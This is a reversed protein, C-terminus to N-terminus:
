LGMAWLDHCVADLHEARLLDLRLARLRTTERIGVICAPPPSPRFRHRLLFLGHGPEITRHDVRDRREPPYLDRLSGLCVVYQGTYLKVLLSISLRGHAESRITRSRTISSVCHYLGVVDM